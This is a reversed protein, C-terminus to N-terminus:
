CYLDKIIRALSVIFIVALGSLELICVARQVSVLTSKSM